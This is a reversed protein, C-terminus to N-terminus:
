GAGDATIERDRGSVLVEARGDFRISVSKAYEGSDYREVILSGRGSSIAELIDALGNGTGDTTNGREGLRAIIEDPFPVGSDFVQIQYGMATRGFILLIKKPKTESREVARIANRVLDGIAQQLKLQSIRNGEMVTSVPAIVINDFCIGLAAARRKEAQLQSDMLVFGTKQLPNNMLFTKWGEKELESSMGEAERIAASLEVSLAKDTSRDIKRKLQVLERQVAPVVEKSKHLESSLARVEALLKKIKKQRLQEGYLWILLIALCTCVVLLVYQNLRRSEAIYPKHLIWCSYFSVVAFLAPILCAHRQSILVIEANKKRLWYAGVFAVAAYLVCRVGAIIFIDKIHTLYIMAASIITTVCLLGNAIIYSLLVHMIHNSKESSRFAYLVAFELMVIENDFIIGSLILTLQTFVTVPLAIAGWKSGPRRKISDLFLFISGSYIIATIMKVITIAM